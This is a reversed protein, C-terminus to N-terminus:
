APVAPPISGGAAPGIKWFVDTLNRCTKKTYSVTMKTSKLGKSGSKEWTGALKKGGAEAAQLPPPGRGGTPAACLFRM